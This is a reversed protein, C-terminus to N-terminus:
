RVLRVLKGFPMVAVQHDDEYVVYGPRCNKVQSVHIDYLELIGIMEHMRGLHENATPKFWCIIHKTHGRQKYLGPSSLNRRFWDWLEELRQRDYLYMDNSHLLFYAAQFVGHRSEEEDDIFSTRFRLYMFNFKYTACHGQPIM